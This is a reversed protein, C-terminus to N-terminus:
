WENNAVECKEVVYNTIPSGGNDHPASWNLNFSEGAFDTAYIKRPPGPRDLVIVNFTATDSDNM